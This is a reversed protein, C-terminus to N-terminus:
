RAGALPGEELEPASVSGLCSVAADTQICRAAVLTTGGLWAAAARLGRRVSDVSCGEDCRASVDALRRQGVQPFDIERIGDPNRPAGPASGPAAWFDLEIRWAQSASGLGPAGPAVAAQPDVNVALPPSAPATFAKPDGPGYVTAGCSYRGVRSSSGTGKRQQQCEPSTLFSGGAEAAAERLAAQLLAPSCSLDSLRLSDLREEPDGPHCEVSVKGLRKLSGPAREASDIQLASVVAAQRSGAYHVGSASCGCVGVVGWM